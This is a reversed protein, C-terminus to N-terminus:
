GKFSYVKSTDSSVCGAWIEVSDALVPHKVKNLTAGLLLRTTDESSIMTGINQRQYEGFECYIETNSLIAGNKDHAMLIWAAACHGYVIEFLSMPKNILRNIYSYLEDYNPEGPTINWNAYVGSRPINAAEQASVDAATFTAHECVPYGKVTDAISTLYPNVWLRCGSCFVSKVTPYQAYLKKVYASNYVSDQLRAKTGAEVNTTKQANCYAANLCLLLWVLLIYIYNRTKM